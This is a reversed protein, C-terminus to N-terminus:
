FGVWVFMWYNSGRSFILYLKSLEDRLPFFVNFFYVRFFSLFIIIIIGPRAQVVSQLNYLNVYGLQLQLCWRKSDEHGCGPAMKSGRLRSSTDSTSYPHQRYRKGFRREM